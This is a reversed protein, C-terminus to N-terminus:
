TMESDFAKAAEPARVAELADIDEATFDQLGLVQRDRRKLRQYEDVSIMVTRERGNRTVAVAQTLALDQYRGINRQFEAASVKIM